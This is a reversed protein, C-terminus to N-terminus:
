KWKKSHTTELLHLQWKTNKYPTPTTSKSESEVILQLYVTQGNSPTTM